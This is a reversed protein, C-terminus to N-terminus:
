NNYETVDFSFMDLANRVADMPAIDRKAIASSALEQVLDIRHLSEDGYHDRLLDPVKLEQRIASASKGFLGRNITDQCNSYIFKRYNDSLDPHRDLYTKTADTLKKFAYKTKQRIVLWNQRNEHTLEIGMQHYAISRISDGLGAALIKGVELNQNAVAEWTALALFDDLEILSVKPTGVSRKNAVSGSYQGIIRDEGLFTKLSKSTRKKRLNNPEYGLITEATPYTLYLTKTDPQSVDVAVELQEWGGYQITELRVSIISM